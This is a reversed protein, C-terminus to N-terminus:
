KTLVFYFENAEPDSVVPQSWVSTWPDLARCVYDVVERFSDYTWVHFHIDGGTVVSHCVREYIDDIPTVFSKSYFEVHHLVDRADSPYEYDAILHELPTPQRKKDFTLRMEPVFLVLSGGPKLREYAHRFGLLPNRLHEIVHAAIIFDLSEAAIGDMQEMGTVFTLDVFDDGQTAYARDNLQSQSFADAYLVSCEAPVAVPTTGAGFEVGCGSLRSTAIERMTGVETRPPRLWHESSWRLPMPAALKNKKLELESITQVDDPWVFGYQHVHEVSALWHRRGERVLFVRGALHDERCSVLRGIGEQM